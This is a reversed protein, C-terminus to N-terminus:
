HRDRQTEKGRKIDTDRQREKGTQRKRDTARINAHGLYSMFSTVWMLTISLVFMFPFQLLSSVSIKTVSSSNRLAGCRYGPSNKCLSGRRQQAHGHLISVVNNYSAADMGIKVLFREVSRADSEPM